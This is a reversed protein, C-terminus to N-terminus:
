LVLVEVLGFDNDFVERTYTSPTECHVFIRSLKYDLPLFLSLSLVM